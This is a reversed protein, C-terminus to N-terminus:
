NKPVLTVSFIYPSPQTDVNGIESCTEAASSEIGGVIYGLLVPNTGLRDLALVSNPYYPLHSVGLFLAGAGFLLNPSSHLVITDCTEPNSPPPCTGFTTAISPYTGSMLYQEYNGSSDIRITTVDNTFGLGGDQCLSGGFSYIGGNISYLFSIGGFFLTYMDGTKESYLGLNPCAYNNMGQAFTNPNSLNLSRSSGDAQIEIPITWAGFNVGPTFVGGFAVLYQQLSNGIKKLAPVVNLDRRRYIPNPAPQPYPYISLKKGTDIIQFPRIQCTYDGNSTTNVYSGSFNQGFCLLAPQHPNFQWMVGGTVQLLPHSVQRISKAASAKKKGKVWKILRPLDIATLVSKTEMVGTASNIGYGGVMYLTDSGDDQFFLANTVSLLDIQGQSLKSSSETLSRSVIQGTSINLVYVTTNQSASPFTDGLFGHLGYTRGALLVYENKYLGAVYAQLGAPLSFSAPSIQIRFPLADESLPNTVYSTQNDGYVSCCLAAFCWLKRLM